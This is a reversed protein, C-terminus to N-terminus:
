NYLPIGNHCKCIHNCHLSHTHKLIFEMLTVLRIVKPMSNLKESNIEENSFPFLLKTYHSLGAIRAVWSTSIPFIMTGPLGPLFNLFGDWGIFDLYPPMLRDDWRCLSAYILPDGDVSTWGYLWVKDWFYNICFISVSHSLYYLVQRALTFGQTWIGTSCFLLFSLFYSHQEIEGKFPSNNCWLKHFCKVSQLSYL